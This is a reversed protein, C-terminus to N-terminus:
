WKSDCYCLKYLISTQPVIPVWFISGIAQQSSLSRHCWELLTLALITVSKHTLQTLHIDNIHM